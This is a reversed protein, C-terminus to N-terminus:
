IRQDSAIAFQGRRKCEEYYSDEWHRNNDQCYQKIDNVTKINKKACELCWVDHYQQSTWDKNPAFNELPLVKGCKICYKGIIASKSSSKQSGAM